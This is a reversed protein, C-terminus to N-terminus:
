PGQPRYHQVVTPRGDLEISEVSDVLEYAVLGSEIWSKLGPMSRTYASASMEASHQSILSVRASIAYGGLLACRSPVGVM